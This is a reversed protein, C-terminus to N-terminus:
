HWYVVATQFPIKILSLYRCFKNALTLLLTQKKQIMTLIGNDHM